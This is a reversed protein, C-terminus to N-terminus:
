KTEGKLKTIAEILDSKAEEARALDKICVQKDNEYDEVDIELQQIRKHTYELKEELQKVAYSM